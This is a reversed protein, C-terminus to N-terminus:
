LQQPDVYRREFHVGTPGCKGESRRSREIDCNMHHSLGTVLSFGHHHSACQMKQMADSYSHECDKCLKAGIANPHMSREM